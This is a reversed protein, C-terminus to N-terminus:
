VTKTRGELTKLFDLFVTKRIVWKKGVKIAADSGTAAAIQKRLTGVSTDYQKALDSLDLTEIELECTGSGSRSALEHMRESMAAQEHRVLDISAALVLLKDTG